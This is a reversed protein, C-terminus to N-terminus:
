LAETLRYGVGRLNVVFPRESAALKKRLRCAHTDLTRTDGISVYGWVERLLRDKPFVRTPDTALMHLLAFEKSSLHVPQGDLRVRRTIPDVALPGVRLVGQRSRHGSRRLLARM